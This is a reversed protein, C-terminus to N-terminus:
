QNGKRYTQHPTMSKMKEEEKHSKRNVKIRNQKELRYRLSYSM